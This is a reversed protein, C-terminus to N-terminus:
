PLVQIDDRKGAKRLLAERAAKLRDAARLERLRVNWQRRRAWLNREDEMVEYMYPALSFTVDLM